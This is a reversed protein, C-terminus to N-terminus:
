VLVSAVGAVILGAGVPAWSSGGARTRRSRRVTALGLMSAHNTTGVDFMVAVHLLRDELEAEPVPPQRLLVAEDFPRRAAAPVLTARERGRCASLEERGPAACTLVQGGSGLRLRPGHPAFGRKNLDDQQDGDKPLGKAPITQLIAWRWAGGGGSVDGAM